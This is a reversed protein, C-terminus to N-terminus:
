VPGHPRRLEARDAIRAAGVGERLAATQWDPRQAPDARPARTGGATMLVAAVAATQEPTPVGGGRVVARLTGGDPTAVEVSNGTADTDSVTGSATDSATSSM